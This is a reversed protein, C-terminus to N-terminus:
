LLMPEIGRWIMCSKHHVFHCQLLTEPLGETEGTLEYEMFQDTNMLQGAMWAIPRLVTLIILYGVLFFFMQVADVKGNM